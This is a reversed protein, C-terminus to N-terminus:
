FRTTLVSTLDAAPSAAGLGDSSGLARLVRDAEVDGKKSARRLLERGEEAKDAGLSQTAYLIGLNTMSPVDGLEAGRKYYRAAKELDVPGRVRAYAKEDHYLGVNFAAEAVGYEAAREYYEHAKVVDPAVGRGREYCEGVGTLALGKLYKDSSETEAVATMMEFASSQESPNGAQQVALNYRALNFGAEALEVLLGTGHERLEKDRKRQMALALPVVMRDFSVTPLARRAKAIRNPGSFKQFRDIWADYERTLARASQFEGDSTRVPGSLGPKTTASM